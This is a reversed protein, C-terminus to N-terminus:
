YVELYIFDQNEDSRTTCSKIKCNHTIKSYCIRDVQELLELGSYEGNLSSYCKEKDIWFEFDNVIEDSKIDVRLVKSKYIIEQYPKSSYVYIIDGVNYNAKQGM